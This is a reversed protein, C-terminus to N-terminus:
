KRFFEVPSTYSIIEVVDGFEVASEISDKIEILLDRGTVTLFYDVLSTAAHNPQYESPPVLALNEIDWVIKQKPILSLERSVVLIEELSKKTDTVPLKGQYLKQMLSPFRSGWGDPELNFSITSFLAHVIAGPGIETVVSGSKIGTTM